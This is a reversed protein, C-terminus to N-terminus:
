LTPYPELATVAEGGVQGGYVEVSDLFPDVLAADVWGARDGDAFEGLGAADVLGLFAHFEEAAAAVVGEFLGDVDDDRAGGGGGDGGDLGGAAGHRGAEVRAGRDDTDHLALHVRENRHSPSRLTATLSQMLRLPNLPSLRQSLRIYHLLHPKLIPQRVRRLTPINLVIPVGRM